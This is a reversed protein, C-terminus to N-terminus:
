GKWPTQRDADSSAGVVLVSSHVQRLTILPTSADGTVAAILLRRNRAVTERDDAPTFGLNLEGPAGEVCYARSLGGKRTSFGHWLWDTKQRGLKGWAPIKLLQVGNPAITPVPAAHSLDEPAVRQLRVRRTVGAAKGRLNRVLGAAQFLSDIEQIRPYPAVPSKGAPRSPTKPSSPSRM